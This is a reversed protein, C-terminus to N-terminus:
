VAVSTPLTLHTYSVPTFHHRSIETHHPIDHHSKLHKTTHIHNHTANLATQEKQICEVYLMGNWMVGQLLYIDETTDNVDARLVGM